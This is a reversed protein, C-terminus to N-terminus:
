KPSIRLKIAVWVNEAFSDPIVAKWKPPCQANLSRKPNSSATDYTISAVTAVERGEKRYLQREITEERRKPDLVRVWCSWASFEKEFVISDPDVFEEAGNTSSAIFVWRGDVDGLKRANGVSAVLLVSVSLVAISLLDSLRM